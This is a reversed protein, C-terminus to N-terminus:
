RASISIEVGGRYLVFGDSADIVYEPTPSSEFLKQTGAVSYARAAFPDERNQLAEFARGVVGGADNRNPDLNAAARQAYNHAFISTPLEVSKELFTQQTTPEVLNGVNAFFAAEGSEYLEKVFDLEPHLGYVACPQNSANIPLFSSRNLAALGRHARYHEYM